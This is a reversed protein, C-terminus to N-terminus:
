LQVLRQHLIEPTEFDEPLLYGTPLSLGLSKELEMILEVLAFSDLWGEQLLQSQQGIRDGELGRRQTVFRRITTLVADLSLNTQMM